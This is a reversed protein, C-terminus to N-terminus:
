EIKSDVTFSTLSSFFFSEWGSHASHMIMCAEEKLLVETKNIYLFPPEAFLQPGDKSHM